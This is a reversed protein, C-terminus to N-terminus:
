KAPINSPQTVVIDGVSLGSLIEMDTDSALGLTVTKKIYKKGIKVFVKSSDIIASTPVILVNNRSGTIIEANGNMGIRYKIASNEPLKVEVSFANGGNTTTHSVFDIRNVKLNLNESPYPDLNINVTQGEKVKGIDAEDVDINFVLSTPDVISFITSANVNAGAVTVDARTLIGDIPSWLISQEETIRQIELKIQTQDLSNLATELDRRADISLGTDSLSRNGHKDDVEDFNIKEKNYDKVANEINKQLIRQDLAAITQGQSVFDGLKAGLYVLKTSSIPFLNAFNKSAVTGTVSLSQVLNTKKITITETPLPLKPKFVLILGFIVLAGIVSIIKHKKIWALFQKLKKM